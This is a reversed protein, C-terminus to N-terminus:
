LILLHFIFHSTLTQESVENFVRNIKHYDVPRGNIYVFQRDNDCRGVGEGPRSVYGYLVIPHSLTIINSNSPDNINNERRDEETLDIHNLRQEEDFNNTLDFSDNGTSSDETLTTIECRFSTLTNYFKNGFVSIINHEIKPTSQM